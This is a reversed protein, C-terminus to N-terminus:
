DYNWYEYFNFWQEPYEELITEMERAFHQALNAAKEQQSAYERDDFGVPRVYVKYRYASQKMVFLAVTPVDRQIALLYLGLPLRATAGLLECEVYRPSGFVRDGPVSLIEGSALADNMLFIHSLDDAVPIMRINNKSLIRNRYEMVDKAEGSFVLANFRKKRNVLTYGAMEYNGVHCSLVMFGEKRCSLEQFLEDNDLEFEFKRGAYAAFRDIVVQGFRYHNLCAYALSEWLGYGWRQRFYHYIAIFGQPRFLIYLPVAFVAMGLYAFRLDIFKLARILMRHMWPMGDTRGKWDDHALQEAM